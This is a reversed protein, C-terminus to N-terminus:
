SVLVIDDPGCGAATLTRAMMESWVELDNKTYGSIIPHGTTGSSGHVRVIERKPVALLGFPWQDRLDTKEMFPLYKLDEISRIDEPRVGKEDMRARYMPVNDYEHRVTKVLRESQLQLREDRSMCEMQHNFIKHERKEM